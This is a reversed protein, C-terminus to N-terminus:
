VRCPNSSLDSLLIEPSDKLIRLM